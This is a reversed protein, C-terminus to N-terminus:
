SCSFAVTLVEDKGVLENRESEREVMKICLSFNVGKLIAILAGLLSPHPILRPPRSSTRHPRLHAPLAYSGWSHLTPSRHYMGIRATWFAIPPNLKLCMCITMLGYFLFCDITSPSLFPLTPLIKVSCLVDSRHRFCTLQWPAFSFYFDWVPLKLLGSTYVVLFASQRCSYLV